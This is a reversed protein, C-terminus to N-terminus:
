DKKEALRQKLLALDHQWAQEKERFRQAELLQQEVVVDTVRTDAGQQLVVSEELADIDRDIQTFTALPSNADAGSYSEGMHSKAQAQHLRSVLADRRRIAAQIQRDLSVESDKIQEVEERFTQLAELHTSWVRERNIKEGLAEKALADDGWEVAKRARAEWDDIAGRIEAEELELKKQEAMVDVLRQRCRQRQINLEELILAFEREPDELLNLKANAEAQFLRKIRKLFSM